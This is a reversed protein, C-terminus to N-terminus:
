QTSEPPRATLVFSPAIRPDTTLFIQGNSLLEPARPRAPKVAQLEVVMESVLNRAARIQSMAAESGQAFLAQEVVLTVRTTQWDAQYQPDSRSYAAQSFHMFSTEFYPRVAGPHDWSDNSSGYPLRIHMTAGHKSVRYLEQMLALTDVIHEFAHCVYFGDVSNDELPLRETRCNGLNFHLDRKRGAIDVNIWGPIYENGCGLHLITKQDTFERTNLSAAIRPDVTSSSWHSFTKATHARYFSEEESLARDDVQWPTHELLYPYGLRLNEGRISFDVGPQYIAFTTDVQAAFIGQTVPKWWFQSEWQLAADGQAYHPSISDVRLGPAVKVSDPFRHAVSVLRSILDTPCFDAPVLDADSVIYPVSLHQHLALKWFAWPGINQGLRHLTVREPLDEYYALLPPYTSDNDLIQIDTCGVALLWTIMRRLSGLRNRNNLIIPISQWNTTM